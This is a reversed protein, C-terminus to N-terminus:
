KTNFSAIKGQYQQVLALMEFIKKEIFDHESFPIFHPRGKFFHVYLYPANVLHTKAFSANSTDILEDKEGQMYMVPVKINQWYPLMKALEAPHTVKEKNASKFMRPIFWNILPNEVAPTFWYTHELGAGLSPGTLVLGNVLQPYDMAFRCAISTGYSGGVVIIPRKTKGNNQLMDKVYAAQQQLSTVPKGFGSYGYGPRDIALVHFTHLFLSDTFYIKYISSSSPAGHIFVVTPLTDNGASIYRVNRGESTFYRIQGNIHHSSFLSLWEKDSMRFQVFADFVFCAIIFFAIIGVVIKGIRKIWKKMCYIIGALLLFVCM